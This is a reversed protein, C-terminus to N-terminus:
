ARKASKAKSEALGAALLISDSFHTKARSTDVFVKDLNVVPAGFAKAGGVFHLSRFILNGTVGDPAIVLDCDKVADEILIAYHKANMGDSKLDGALMEGEDLSAKIAAGRNADESRGKSLVAIKLTWGLRSFYEVTNKVLRLRSQYDNGEDIGVPALLFRRGRLDEIIVVRMVEKLNFEDKLQQLVKSSSLTGRVAVDIEGHKLAHTLDGSDEFGVLRIKSGSASLRSKTDALMDVPVGIGVRLTSRAGLSLLNM